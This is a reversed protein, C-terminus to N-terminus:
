TCQTDTGYCVQSSECRVQSDLTHADGRLRTAAIAPIFLLALLLSLKTTSCLAHSAMFAARTKCGSNSAKCCNCSGAVSLRCVAEAKCPRPHSQAHSPQSLNWSHVSVRCAKVATELEVWGPEHQRSNLRSSLATSEDVHQAAVFCRWLSRYFHVKASGAGSDPM